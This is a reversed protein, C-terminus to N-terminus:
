GVKFGSERIMDGIVAREESSLAKMESMTVNDFFKKILTVNSPSKTKTTM